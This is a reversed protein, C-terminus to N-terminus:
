ITIEDSFLLEGQDGIFYKKFIHRDKSPVHVVVSDKGASIQEISQLGEVATERYDGWINAYLIKNDAVAFAHEGDCVFDETKMFHQGFQADLLWIMHNEDDGNIKYAEFYEAKKEDEIWCCLFKDDRLRIEKKIWIYDNKGDIWSVPYSRFGDTELKLKKKLDVTKKTRRDFLKWSNDDSYYVYKENIFAQFCAGSIFGEEYEAILEAKKEDVDYIILKKKGDGLFYQRLLLMSKQSDLMIYLGNLEFQEVIQETEASFVTILTKGTNEDQAAGSALFIYKGDHCFSDINPINGACIQASDSLIKYINGEDLFFVKDDLNVIGTQRSNQPSPFYRNNTRAKDGNCKYYGNVDRHIKYADFCAKYRAFDVGADYENKKYWMAAISDSQPVGYGIRYCDGCLEIATSDNQDAKRRIEEFVRKRRRLDSSEIKRSLQALYELDGCKEYAKGGWYLGHDLDGNAFYYESIDKCVSEDVWDPWTHSRLLEQAVFHIHTDMMEQVDHPVDHLADKESYRSKYILYLYNSWAKGRDGSETAREFWELAMEESSAGCEIKGYLYMEGLMNMAQLNNMDAAQELVEKAAEYKEFRIYKEAENVLANAEENYYNPM